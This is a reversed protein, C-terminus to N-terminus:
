EDGSESEDGSSAYGGMNSAFHDRSKYKIDLKRCVYRPRFGKYKKNWFCKSSVVKPHRNRRGHKKCHRCPNNAATQEDRGRAKDKGGRAKDKSRMSSRTSKTSRTAKTDGSSDSDYGEAAFATEDDSTDDDFILQQVVAHALEEDVPAPAAKLSRIADARALEVLIARVSTANHVHNHAYVGRITDLANAIERGWREKSATEADALIITAVVDEGIEVGSRKLKALAARLNVVNESYHRRHDFRWQLAAVAGALVDGARQREAGAHLQTFLEHVEWEDLSKHTGDDTRLIPDTIRRGLMETFAEAIGEKAGMVAQVMENFREAEDNADARTTIKPAVAAAKADKSANIAEAEIKSTALITDATAVDTTKLASLKSPNPDATSSRALDRMGGGGNGYSNYCEGLIRVTALHYGQADSNTYREGRAPFSLATVNRKVHEKTAARATYSSSM